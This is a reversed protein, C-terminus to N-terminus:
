PMYTIIGQNTIEPGTGTRHVTPSIRHLACSHRTHLVFVLAPQLKSGRRNPSPSTQLSFPRHSSFRVPVSFPACVSSMSASFKVVIDFVDELM